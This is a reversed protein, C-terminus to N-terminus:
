RKWDTRLNNNIMNQMLFACDGLGKYNQFSKVLTSLFFLSVRFRTLVNVDGSEEEFSIFESERKYM